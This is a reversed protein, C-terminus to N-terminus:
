RGAVAQYIEASVRAIAREIGAEDSHRAFLVLIYLKGGAEIIGADARYGTLTGTLHAANVGGPLDRLMWERDRQARQILHGLLRESVSPNVVEGAGLKLLFLAVDGTTTTNEVGRAQAAQDFLKRRLSTQGMGLRAAYSNVPEFGGFRDILMNAATNDSYLLMAEILQELTFTTGLPRDGIIGTGGTRNAETLTFTDTLKWHGLAVQEYAAGAIPLKILSGAPLVMEPDDAAYAPADLRAFVGSSTGPLSLIARHVTAELAGGGAATPAVTATPPPATAPAAAPGRTPPVTPTPWATTPTPPVPTPTPRAPLETPPPLAVMPTPSATPTPPPTPTSVTTATPAVVPATTPTDIAAALPPLVTAPPVPGDAARDQSALLRAGVGAVVCILLALAIGAVALLRGAVKGRASKPATPPFANVQTTAALRRRPAPPPAPAGALAASLAACLAGGDPFRDGPSKALARLLVGDVGVPLRPNAARPPPPPAAAVRMAVSLPTDGEGMPFPPQGALAEYFIVGLAYLDAQGDIPLGQAQEPALYLVTGLQTGADTIATDGAVRAIGFDALLPEGEDSFLINGPKVDRHVVGRVHAYDLAAAIPGLFTLAEAPTLGERLVDAFTGGGLYPMVIYPLGRAEGFDYLPVIHPHQLRASVRAERLFRAVFAPDRALRPHIVKVAVTRGVAPDTARYVQAMGGQGLLADLRYRGLTTGILPRDLADM